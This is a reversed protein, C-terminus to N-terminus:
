GVEAAVKAALEHNREANIQTVDAREHGLAVQAAELGYLKRVRTGHLHRLQNASWHPVGARKCARAIALDLQGVTYSETVAELKAAQRAARGKEQYAYLKTQRRNRQEDWLARMAERPSFVFAAPDRTLLFPALIAQGRPGIPVVRDMGRWRKKHQEPRYLWVAGTRDLDAARVQVAEGPRMGTLRMLEVIARTQPRLFPLIPDVHEDPVPKVPETERAASRGPDLPAVKTLRNHVEAPVLELSAGWKFVHRIRNVWKNITKRAAGDEIMKDRVARLALPGFQAASTHAYMAKLPRFALKFNGVESTQSGDPRRYHAVAHDWFAAMLEAITLDGPLPEPLRRAGLRWERLLREYEQHSEESDHPGLLYDRRSGDPAPLTVIAQGSQKHLRYSPRSRRRAM